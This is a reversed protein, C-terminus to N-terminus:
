SELGFRALFTKVLKYEELFKLGRETAKLSTEEILGRKRMDALYEKFRDFPVYVKSQVRTIKVEEQSRTEEIIADLIEAFIQQRSRRSM